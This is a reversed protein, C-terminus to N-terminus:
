ILYIYIYIVQKFTGPHKFGLSKVLREVQYDQLGEKVDIKEKFIANPNSEAVAEIDMGGSSSIIYLYSFM